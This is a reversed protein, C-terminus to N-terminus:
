DEAADDAETTTSTDEDDTSKEPEDDEFAKEPLHVIKKVPESVQSTFSSSKAAAVADNKAFTIKSSKGSPEKLSSAFSKTNSKAAQHSQNLSMEKITMPVPALQGNCESAFNILITSLIAVTILQSLLTISSSMIFVPRSDPNAGASLIFPRL